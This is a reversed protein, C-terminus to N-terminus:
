NFGNYGGGSYGPSESIGAELIDSNEAYVDAGELIGLRTRELPDMDEVYMTEKEEKLRRLVETALMRVAEYDNVLAEELIQIAKDGGIVGLIEVASLRVGADEDKLEDRLPDIIIENEMEEDRIDMEEDYPVEGLPELAAGGTTVIMPESEELPDLMDEDPINVDENYPEDYL